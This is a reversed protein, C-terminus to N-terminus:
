PHHNRDCLEAMEIDVATVGGADHTSWRAEVKRYGVVLDPHHDRKDAAMGVRVVFAIGSAYEDFAFTKALAGDRHEWGPHSAVFTEIAPASLKDRKSM